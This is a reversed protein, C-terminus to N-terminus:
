MHVYMSYTFLFASRCVHAFVSVYGCMCVCVSVYVCACQHYLCSFLCPHIMALQFVIKWLSQPVNKLSYLTRFPRWVSVSSCSESSQASNCLSISSTFSPSLHCPASSAVPSLNFCLLPYSLPCFKGSIQVTIHTVTLKHVRTSKSNHICSHM